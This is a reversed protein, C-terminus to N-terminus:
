NKKKMVVFVFRLKNCSIYPKVIAQKYYGESPLVEQVTGIPIGEPFIESIESTVVRDGLKLDSEPLLYDFLLSERNRGVVVGSEQTRVIKAPVYSFMDSLLQVKATSDYVEVIRGVLCFEKDFALVPFDREIGSSKGKDITVSKLWHVPDHLIVNSILFDYETKPLLKLVNRFYRNEERLADYQTKIFNLKKIEDKLRINEQHTKIVSIINSGTQEGKNIIKLALEPVPLFLYLLFKRIISIKETFDFVILLLSVGILSFFVITPKRSM